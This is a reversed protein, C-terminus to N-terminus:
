QTTQRQLSHTEQRKERFYKVYIKAPLIVCTFYLSPWKAHCPVALLYTIPADCPGAGQTARRVPQCALAPDDAAAAERFAVDVVVRADARRVPMFVEVRASLEQLVLIGFAAKDKSRHELYNQM